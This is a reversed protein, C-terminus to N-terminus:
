KVILNLYREYAKEDSSTVNFYYKVGRYSINLKFQPEGNESVGGETLYYEAGRYTGVSGNYYDALEDYIVKEDTFEVFVKTEDRSLGNLVTIEASALVLEKEANFSTKCSNVSANSAIAFNEIFKLSKDVSSLSYANANEHTLEADTYYRFGNDDPSSPATGSNGASPDKDVKNFDAKLIITLAVAFVLVFSAAISAFKLFKPMVSQKPKVFKKADGTIDDPINAGEFYEEFEQELKKDKM